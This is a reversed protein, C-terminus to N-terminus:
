MFLIDPYLNSIHVYALYVKFGNGNSFAFKLAKKEKQLKEFLLPCDMVYVKETLLDEVENNKVEIFNTVEKTEPSLPTYRVEYNGIRLKYFVMNDKPTDKKWIRKYLWKWRM